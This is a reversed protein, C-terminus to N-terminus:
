PENSSLTVPWGRELCWYQALMHLNNKCWYKEYGEDKGEAEYIEAVSGLACVSV